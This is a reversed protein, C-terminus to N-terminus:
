LPLTLAVILMAGALRWRGRTEMGLGVRFRRGLRKVM